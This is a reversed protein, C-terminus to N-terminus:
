KVGGKPIKGGPLTLWITVCPVLNFCFRKNDPSYHLGVWLSTWRFLVGFSFAVKILGQTWKDSYVISLHYLRIYGTKPNHYFRETGSGMNSNWVQIM